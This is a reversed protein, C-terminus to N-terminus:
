KSYRNHLGHATHTEEEFKVELHIQIRSVLHVQWVKPKVASYAQSTVQQYIKRIYEDDNVSQIM